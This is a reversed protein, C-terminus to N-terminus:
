AVGAAARGLEDDHARGRGRGAEPQACHQRRVPVLAVDHAMHIAMLRPRLLLHLPVPPLSRRHLHLHPRPHAPRPHQLNLQPNTRPTPPRTPPNTRSSSSSSSPDHQLHPIHLRQPRTNSPTTTTTTTTIPAPRPRPRPSIRHSRQPSPPTLLHIPIHRNDVHLDSPTTHRSPSAQLQPMLSSPRRASNSGLRSYM